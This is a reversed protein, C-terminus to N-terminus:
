FNRWRKKFFRTHTHTLTLQDPHLKSKFGGNRQYIYRRSSCKCFVGLITNENLFRFTFITPERRNKNYSLYIPLFLFIYKLEFANESNGNGRRSYCLSNMSSHTHTHPHNGAQGLTHTHTHRFTHTSHALALTYTHTQHTHTYIKFSLTEPTVKAVAARTHM